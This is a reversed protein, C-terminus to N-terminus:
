ARKALALRVAEDLEEYSAITTLAEAALDTPGYGFEVLVCALGAASAARIDTDSDGIFVARTARPSGLTAELCLRVPAPDPKPKAATDGGVITEFSGDVGLMALLRRAPAESKNTCVAVRVGAARLRAIAKIAGPFPRSADAIHANYYDLFAALRDALDADSLTRGAAAFGRRIMARAGHGILGRATALDLPPAGAGVLAHNVAAALDAATDILTGDLDFIAAAGSLDGAADSM